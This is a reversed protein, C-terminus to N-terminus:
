TLLANRQHIFHFCDEAALPKSVYFGQIDDCGFDQLMDWQGSMEVGEAIVRKGLNHSMAIIAKIIARDSEDSIMDKVFSRDIKISHVSLNKLLSLSSYGTGFDDISLKVGMNLIQECINLSYQENTMATHETIELCLLSPDVGTRSLTHALRDPFHLDLFQKASLNISMQLSDIGRDMWDKLQECATDLVWYGIEVIAGTEEALPIFKGPSLNSSDPYEWRILAETGTILGSQLDIQPQYHLRFRGESLGKRVTEVTMFLDNEHSRLSSDYIVYRNKGSKKGHYMAVDAHQLLEDAHVGHEPSMSIGISATITFSKGNHIFPTNFGELLQQSVRHLDEISHIDPIILAFEDGGFRAILTQDNTNRVLLRAVHELLIDGAHHGQTDNLQKFGDLDVLLLAFSSSTAISHELQEHLRKGFMYRNALGTLQDHCALYNAKREASKVDTIDLLVLFQFQEGETMVYESEAKVYKIEGTSTTISFVGKFLEEANMKSNGATIPAELTLFKYFNHNVLERRSYQFLIAAEPNADRIMMQEDLLLISMPSKEYLIQYKREISPLFDYKVMAYRLLLAFVFLGYSALHPLGLDEPLFAPRKLYAGLTTSIIGTCILGRTILVVQKRKLLFANSNRTNKFFIYLFYSLILISYIVTLSLIIKLLTSPYVYTWASEKVYNLSIGDNLFFIFLISLSPIYCITILTPYSINLQNGVLSAIFHLELCLTLFAPILIFTIVVGNAYELPSFNLLFFGLMLIMMAIFFYSTIRYTSNSRDRHYIEVAMYFLLLVPLLYAAISIIFLTM